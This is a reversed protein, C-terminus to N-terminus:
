SRAVHAPVAAERGAEVVIAQGLSWLTLTTLAVMVRGAPGRPRPRQAARAPAGPIRRHRMDRAERAAAAAEDIDRQAPVHGAWAGLM